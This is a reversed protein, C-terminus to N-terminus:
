RGPPRPQRQGAQLRGPRRVHPRPGGADTAGAGPEGQLRDQFYRRNPLGTLSDYHAMEYLQEQTQKMVSIDSFLGIYRSSGERKETVASVSLWKPHVEGNKRRDWIEGQWSGQEKLTEWLDETSSSTTGARSSSASTRGSSRRGATAPSPAHVRPQRRPDARGRGHDGGRRQRERLGPLRHLLKREAQKRSTVDLGFINVYGKDLVPVIVLLLTKFGIQVEVEHSDRLLAAEEITKKWEAPM